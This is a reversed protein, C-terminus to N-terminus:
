RVCRPRADDATKLTEMQRWRATQAAVSEVTEFPLLPDTRAKGALWFGFWDVNGQLSLWRDVPTNLSHTGDPVVVMEAPKYQRRLLAYLDWNPGVWFGYTEIRMATRICDTHLSPDNRVWATLGDGFPTGENTRQLRAWQEDFFGYTVTMTFLSNSDGDALTAARIPLDDFTVLNLVRQGTSSFGIIGVKAPDVRGEKVLAQVAARVGENFNLMEQRESPAQTNAPSYPMALVLIGDRLFARGAFGSTFGDNGNPGGLYFRDPSFGYTQILLPSRAHPNTGSAAMLGGDWQRGAADHWTYPQMTGWSAADFQPSLATLRRTEGAAGVAYVDPPQNLGQQVRLTWSSGPTKLEAAAGAERWGGDAQRHFERRRDGDLVQFGDPLAYAGHFHNELAAIDIWRGREPWYEIIHSAPPAKGDAAPPLYTGAIVVSDGSGQWLRDQRRASDEADDPADVIAQEKADDLRWATLRRPVYSHHSSYYQLPDVDDGVALEKVLEAVQPYQGAWGATREADWRQLLAWRGDPSISVTPIALIRPFSAGLPRAPRPSGVEAVYYRFRWQQVGLDHQGFKVTWFSKNEVVVAHEGDRLPPNPVQAVYVVRRLDQSVAYSMIPNTEHTLQVLKRTPVDLRYVQSSGGELRAVFLLTRNDHWHVDEMAPVAYFNDRAMSASFVVVPSPARQAALHEPRIDLLQIDYRNKDTTVDAQRTLIFAQTGDPSIQEHLLDDSQNRPELIQTFEVIDRATPGAPPQAGAEFTLALCAVALVALLTSRM